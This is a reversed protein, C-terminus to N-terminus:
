WDSGDLRAAAALRLQANQERGAHMPPSSRRRQLAQREGNLPRQGDGAIERRPSRREASRERKRVVSRLSSSGEAASAGHRRGSSGGEPKSGAAPAASPSARQRKADTAAAPQSRHAVRLM